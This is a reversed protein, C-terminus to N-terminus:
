LGAEPRDSIKMKKEQRMVSFKFSLGALLFYIIMQVLMFLLEHRVDSVSVGMTRIRLYAPIMSTSPFIHAVRYLIVPISTEPWPVGSLFLVIPSIFVFTMIAHERRRFLMSITFGLFIV